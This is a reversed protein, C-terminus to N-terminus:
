RRSQGASNAAARPHRQPVRAARTRQTESSHILSMIGAARQGARLSGAFLWNSRGIAIPRIQNEGRNNDAPLDGDDIYRTLAHWRKVSYDIGKARASGDPVKQRQGTLRQQLADAVKRSREQRIRRREDPILEAVEREIAYPEGFFKLTQGLGM